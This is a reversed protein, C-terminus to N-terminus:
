SKMATRFHPLVYTNIGEEGRHVVCSAKGADKRSDVSSGQLHFTGCRKVLYQVKMSYLYGCDGVGSLLLPSNNIELHM